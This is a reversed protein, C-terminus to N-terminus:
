NSAVHRILTHSNLGVFSGSVRERLRAWRAAPKEALVGKKKKKKTLKEAAVTWPFEKKRREERYTKITAALTGAGLAGALAVSTLIMKVKREPKLVLFLINVGFIQYFPWVTFQLCLM